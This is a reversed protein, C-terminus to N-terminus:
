SVGEFIMFQFRITVPQVAGPCASNHPVFSHCGHRHGKACRREVRAEEEGIRESAEANGGRVPSCSVPLVGAGRSV